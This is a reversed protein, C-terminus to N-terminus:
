TSPVRRWGKKERPKKERPLAGFLVGFNGHLSEMGVMGYKRLGQEFAEVALHPKNQEDWWKVEIKHLKEMEENKWERIAIYVRREEGRWCVADEVWGRSQFFLKQHDIPDSATFLGDGQVGRLREVAECAGEDVDIPFYGLVIEARRGTQGASLNWCDDM